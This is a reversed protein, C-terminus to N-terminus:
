MSVEKSFKVMRGWRETPNKNKVHDPTEHIDANKVNEHLGFYMYWFSLAWSSNSTVRVQGLYRFYYTQLNAGNASVLGLGPYPPVVILSM